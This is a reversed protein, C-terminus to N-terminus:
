AEQRKQRRQRQPIKPLSQDSRDEEGWSRVPVGLLREIANASPHNPVQLGNVWRSVSAPETAMLRRLQRVLEAQTWGRERLARRVLRVATVMRLLTNRDLLTTLFYGVLGTSRTRFSRYLLFIGRRVV